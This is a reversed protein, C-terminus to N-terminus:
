SARSLGSVSNGCSSMLSCPAGYWPGPILALHITEGLPSREAHMRVRESVCEGCHRCLQAPVELM